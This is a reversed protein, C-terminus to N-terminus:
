IVFFFVEYINSIKFPARFALPLLSTSTSRLSSSSSSCPTAFKAYCNYLAVFELYVAQAKSGSGDIGDDVYLIGYLTKVFDFKHRPDLMVAFSLIMSYDFWYKEFKKHLKMAM